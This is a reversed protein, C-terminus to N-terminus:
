TNILKIIKYVRKYNGGKPTLGVDLLTQRVNKTKLYAIMIEDDSIQLRKNKKNKGRWTLTQSHCNPCIAELNDRSNNKNNGDKHELELTIPKNNWNDIGCHNCKHNQELLVRKKLREYTLLEFDEKMLKDAWTKKIKEINKKYNETQKNYTKLQILVNKLKESKKASESKKLKDEDSWTRSNRCNLSCYNILGKKPEFDSGCKKCKKM